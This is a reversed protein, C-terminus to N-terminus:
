SRWATFIRVSSRIMDIYSNLNEAYGANLLYVPSTIGTSDYIAGAKYLAGFAAPTKKIMNNYFSSVFKQAKESKFAVPDTIECEIGHAQLEEMVARAASNHGEGTYCSLILVKM